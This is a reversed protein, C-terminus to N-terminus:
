VFHDFDTMYYNAFIQSTLNGIAMGYDEDIKFLSKGPELQEWLKENSRKECKLQPKHLTIQKILRIWWDVDPEKYRDRIFRELMHALLPKNISM